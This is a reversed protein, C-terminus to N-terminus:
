LVARERFRQFLNSTKESISFFQLGDNTPFAVLMGDASTYWQPSIHPPFKITFLTHGNEGSEDILFVEGNRLLLLWQPSEGLKVGSVISAHLQFSPKTSPKSERQEERAVEMFRLTKADFIKQKGNSLILSIKENSINLIKDSLFPINWVNKLLSDKKEELDFIFLLSLSRDFFALEGDSAFFLDGDEMKSMDWKFSFFFDEERIEKPALFIKGWMSVEETSVLINKTWPHFEPKELTVTFIGPFLEFAHPFEGEQKEGNVLLSAGPFPFDFHVIGTKVVSRSEPKYRYGEAFTIAFISVLLFVTFAFIQFAFRRM